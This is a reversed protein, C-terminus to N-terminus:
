TLMLRYNRTKRGDPAVGTDTIEYHINKHSQGLACGAPSTAALWVIASATIAAMNGASYPWNEMIMDFLFQRTDSRMDGSFPNGPINRIEDVFPLWGQKLM